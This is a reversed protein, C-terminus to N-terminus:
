LGTIRGLSDCNVGSWGNCPSANSMWGSLVSSSGVDVAAVAAKESVSSGMTATFLSQLACFQLAAGVGTNAQNNAFDSITKTLLPTCSSCPYSLPSSPASKAFDDLCSALTYATVPPHAPFSTNPLSTPASGHSSAPPPTGNADLTGSSTSDSASHSQQSFLSVAVAVAVAALVLVIVAAITQYFDLLPKATLLLISICYHLISVIVKRKKQKEKLREEEASSMTALLIRQPGAMGFMMKITGVGKSFKGSQTPTYEYGNKFDRTQSFGYASEKRGHQGDAGRPIAELEDMGFQHVDQWRKRHGIYQMRKQQLLGNVRDILTKRRINKDSVQLPCGPRNVYPLEGIQRRQHEQNMLNRGDGEAPSTGSDSMMSDPSIGTELQSTNPVVCEQPGGRGGGIWSSHKHGPEIEVWSPSPINAASTFWGKSKAKALNRVPSQKDKEEPQPTPVMLHDEDHQLVRIPRAYSSSAGNSTEGLNLPSPPTKRKVKREVTTSSSSSSSSSTPIGPNSEGVKRPFLPSRPRINFAAPTPPIFGSTYYSLTPSPVYRDGSPDNFHTGMKPVRQFPSPTPPSSAITYKSITSFREFFRSTSTPNNSQPQM